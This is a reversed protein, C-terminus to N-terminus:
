KNNTNNTSRVPVPLWVEGALCGGNYEVTVGAPAKIQAQPHVIIAPPESGYRQRYDLLARELDLHYYVVYQQM